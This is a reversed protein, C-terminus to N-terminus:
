EAPVLRIKTIESRSGVRMPPGFTGAGHSVYIRTGNFDHLGRNYAFIWENLLTVPFLQGAHTHGALYLDIGKESAYKIGDPSHHLLISPTDAKIDMTKLVQKITAHAGAAHMDVAHEDALMHDLGILQFAGLDVLDNKLVRVGIKRLKAKINAAGSYGDHNGEVFYVPVSLQKLPALNEDKLRIKGDFLDGTIFVYDVDQQNTKDVIKQLYKIGHWHGIHIDSLHMISVEQKLGSIPIEVQITQLNRANLLGYVSVIGAILLASVGFYLPPVKIFVQLAHLGLVALILYLMYGLGVAAISFVMNSFMGSANTFAAIGGILFVTLSAFIIYYSKVNDAGFFFAFRRALYMNIFVVIVLFAILIFFPIIQKM